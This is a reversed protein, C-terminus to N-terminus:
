IIPPDKNVLNNYFFSIKQQSIPRSFYTVNAVAGSIGPNDGIYINDNSMYPILNSVSAVLKKNIFVDLTGGVFNVVINNWKQLPLKTTKYVTKEYPTSNDKKYANTTIKLTNIEPNYWITPKGAYDLVKTFKSYGVGYSPPQAMLFIWSSLGYNYSYNLKDDGELNEYSGMKSNVVFVTKKNIYIPKNNLITSDSPGGEDTDKQALVLKNKFNKIDLMEELIGDVRGTTQIFSIAQKITIPNGLVETTLKNDRFFSYSEKYGLTTLYVTLAQTSEEGTSYMKESYVKEWDINNLSATGITIDDYLKKRKAMIASQIGEVKEDTDINYEGGGPTFTYIWKRFMPLIVYSSVLIIEAALIMLVMKPPSVVQVKAAFSAGKGAAATAAAATSVMGQTLYVLMCPIVMIITFLLRIFINNKISALLRPNNIIYRFVGFLVALVCIIQIILTIINGITYPFQVLGLQVLGYILSAALAVAFFGKFIVKAWHGTFIQKFRREFGMSNPFNTLTAAFFAVALIIGIGLTILQLVWLLVTNTPPVGTFWQYMQETSYTFYFSVYAISLAAVVLRVWNRSIIDGATFLGLIVNGLGVGIFLAFLIMIGCIAWISGAVGTSINPAFIQKLGPIASILILMVSLLTSLPLFKKLFAAAQTSSIAQTIIQLIGYIGVLGSPVTWWWSWDKSLSMIGGLLGLFFAFTTIFGFTPPRGRILPILIISLSGLLIVLSIIGTILDM